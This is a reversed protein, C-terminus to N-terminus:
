LPRTDEHESLRLLAADRESICRELITRLEGIVVQHFDIKAPEKDGSSHAAEWLADAHTRLSYQGSQAAGDAYQLKRLVTALEEYQALRRETLDLQNFLRQERAEFDSRLSTIDDAHMKNMSALRQLLTSWGRAEFDASARRAAASSATSSLLYATRSQQAVVTSELASIRQEQVSSPEGSTHTTRAHLQSLKWLDREVVSFLERHGAEDACSGLSLDVARQLMKVNGRLAAVVVQFDDEARENRPYSLSLSTSWQRALWHSAPSADIDFTPPAVPAPSGYATSVDDVTDRSAVAANLAIRADDRERSVRLLESKTEELQLEMTAHAKSAHDLLTQLDRNELLVRDVEQHMSELEHLLSEVVDRSVAPHNEEVQTQVAEVQSQQLQPPTSPREALFVADRLHPPVSRESMAGGWVMARVSAPSQVFESVASSVPVSFQVSTDGDKALSHLFFFMVLASACAEVDGTEIKGRPILAAPIQLADCARTIATWNHHRAQSASHTALSAPVLEKRPFVASFLKCLVAGSSLDKFTQVKMGAFREAFAFLERRGVEM